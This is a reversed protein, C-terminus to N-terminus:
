VISNVDYVYCFSIHKYFLWSTTYLPREEWGYAQQENERLLLWGRASAILGCPSKARKTTWEGCKADWFGPEVGVITGIWWSEEGCSACGL